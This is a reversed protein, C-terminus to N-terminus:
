AFNALILFVFIVHEREYISVLGLLIVPMLIFDTQKLL